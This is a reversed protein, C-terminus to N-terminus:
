FHFESILSETLNTVNINSGEKAIDAASLILQEVKCFIPFNTNVGVLQLINSIVLIYMMLEKM